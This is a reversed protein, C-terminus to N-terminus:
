NWLDKWGTTTAAGRLFRPKQLGPNFVGASRTRAGASRSIGVRYIHVLTNRAVAQGCSGDSVREGLNELWTM